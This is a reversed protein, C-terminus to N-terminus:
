GSVKELEEEKCFYVAPIRAYEEDAADAEVVYVVGGAASSIDTITGVVGSAKIRVTDDFRLM